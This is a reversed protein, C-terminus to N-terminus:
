KENPTPLCSKSLKDVVQTGPRMLVRSRSIILTQVYFRVGPTIKM